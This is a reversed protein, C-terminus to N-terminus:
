LSGLAAAIRECDGCLEAAGVGAGATQFVLETVGLPRLEAELRAALERAREPAGWIALEDVAEDPVLAALEGWTARRGSAAFAERVAAAAPEWEAGVTVKAFSPTALYFAIQARARERAAAEDPDIATVCWAVVEPAAARAARRGFGERLAPILRERLHNRTLALAHLLVGDCVGAVTRAMAPSLAAAHVRPPQPLAGDESWAERLREVYAATRPAPPEFEAGYRRRIGPTGPGIGLAFRGASLRALDAATAAMARPARAFAYAIGTAVEIRKTGLAIALARVPADRGEYETTWVRQLGGREAQRALEPLPELLDTAFVLGRRLRGQDTM